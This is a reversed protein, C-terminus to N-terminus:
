RNFFLYSMVYFGKHTNENLEKVVIPEEFLQNTRSIVDMLVEWALNSADAAVHIVVHERCESPQVEAGEVGGILLDLAILEAPSLTKKMNLIYRNEDASRKSVCKGYDENAFAKHSNSFLSFVTICLMALSVLLKM